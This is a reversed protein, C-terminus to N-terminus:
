LNLKNKWFKVRNLFGQKEALSILEPIQNLDTITNGIPNLISSYGIEQQIRNKLNTLDVALEQGSKKDFNEIFVDFEESISSGTGSHTAPAMSPMTVPPPNQPPPQVQINTIQELDPAKVQLENINSDAVVQSPTKEIPTRPPIISEIGTLNTATQLTKQVYSSRVSPMIAKQSSIWAEELVPVFIKIHQQVISGVGGIEIREKGGSEDKSLICLIVEEYDRNIGFLDQERRNRYTVNPMQDLQQLINVHEELDADIQTAIRINVHKPLSTLLSINIESLDPAVILLRMKTKSIEENIHSRAGELSRIFWIDKMSMISKKKAQEWFEQTTIQSIELRNLIKLLEESLTNVVRTSFTDRLDEFSDLIQNSIGKVKEEAQSVNKTFLDTINTFTEELNVGTKLSTETIESINGVINKMIERIKTLLKTNFGDIIMQMRSKLVNDIIQHVTKSIVGLHLQKLNNGILINMEEFQHEIDKIQEDIIVKTDTELNSIVENIKEIQGIVKIAKDVDAKQLEMQQDIREKLERIFITYEKLENVGKSKSELESFSENLQAPAQEKIDKIYENFNSLQKILAAYPPLPAYHPTAGLIQKYLGKEVFKEAIRKSEDKDKEILYSIEGLSVADRGTTLFYLEIEEETLQLDSLVQYTLEKSYSVEKDYVDEINFEALELNKDLYMIMKHPPDGHIVEKVIPFSKTSQYEALTVKVSVDELCLKCKITIEKEDRDQFLFAM